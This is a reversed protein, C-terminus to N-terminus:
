RLLFRLTVELGGLTNNARALDSFTADYSVGLQYNDYNLNFTPIIADGPLRIYTGFSMDLKDYYGTYRSEERLIIKYLAGFVIETEKGKQTYLFAPEIASLGHVLNFEANGSISIRNYESVGANYILGSSALHYISAGLEIKTVSYDFRNYKSNDFKWNLGAGVGFSLFPQFLPTENSSLNPNFGTGDYQNQWQAGSEDISHQTIGFQVGAGLRSYDSIKQHYAIAVEARLKTLSLEGAVDRNVMLGIGLSNEDKKISYDSFLGMTQYASAVSPSQNRYHLGGRFKENEGGISAISNYYNNLKLNSFHFDQAFSSISFLLLVLTFNNKKM